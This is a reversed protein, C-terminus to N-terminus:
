DKFGHFVGRNKQIGVANQQQSGARPFMGHGLRNRGTGTAISKPHMRAICPGFSPRDVLGQIPTVDFLQRIKNLSVFNLEQHYSGFLRQDMTQHVLAPKM